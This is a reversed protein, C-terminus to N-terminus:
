VDPFLGHKNFIEDGTARADMDVIDPTVFTHALSDAIDPSPIGEKAMLEKPMMEMKGHTGELKTRYKITALQYWTNDLPESGRLLKGGAKIWLRLRWFMMARINTFQIQDEELEPKEGANLGRVGGELERRLIDYAGRGIGVMDVTINHPRTKLKNKFNIVDEAFQMTDDSNSKMLLRAVNTARHVLVSFNRGGGAVDGGIKNLGFPQAEEVLADDIDQRTLLPMWGRDDMKGRDARNCEYLVNFFPKKRAEEVFAEAVRGEALAAHWNIVIKFFAPDELSRDFHASEWPNGIKCYFSSEPKDGLMRFVLAEDDDSVLAAEDLVVNPAGFGLAGAANTIYIEGLLMKRDKKGVKFNIRDKNKYRRISEENERKDIVFKTRFYDSDFIHQIIYSMIIGAQEKNGAVIAWKEPYTAARFLIALAVVISKGFRTMTELHVRPHLKRSILNFIDCQSDTLIMPNGEDDKFFEKAISRAEERFEVLGRRVDDNGGAWKPNNDEIILDKLIDQSNM